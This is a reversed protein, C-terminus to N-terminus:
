AQRFVGPSTWVISAISSASTRSADVDWSSSTTLSASAYPLCPVLVGQIRSWTPLLCPFPMRVWRVIDTSFAESRAEAVLGPTASQWIGGDSHYPAKVNTRRPPFKTGKSEHVLFISRQLLVSGYRVCRHNGHQRIGINPRRGSPQSVCESKGLAHLNTLVVARLKLEALACDNDGVRVSVTPWRSRLLNGVRHQHSHPIAAGVELPSSGHSSPDKHLWCVHGETLTLVGGLIKFAVM